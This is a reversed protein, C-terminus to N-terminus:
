SKGAGFSTDTRRERFLPMRADNQRMFNNDVATLQAEAQDRWYSDRQEALEAPIKCLMLGGYIICDEYSGIRQGIVQVEPHESAKVPEFGERLRASINSVDDQGMMSLRIWRYGYGEEPNPTPLLEPPRWSVVKQSAERTVRAPRGRPAKEVAKTDLEMNTDSM